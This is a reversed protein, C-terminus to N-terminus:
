NGHSEGEKQAPAGPLYYRDEPYGSDEPLYGVIKGRVEGLPTKFLSSYPWVGVPQPHVNQPGIVQFFEDKSVEAWV